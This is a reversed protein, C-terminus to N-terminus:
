SGTKRFYDAADIRRFELVKTTVEGARVSVGASLPSQFGPHRVEITYDGAPLSLALPTHRMAQPAHAAGHADNVAVVEGWPLADIVLTGTPVAIAAPPTASPQPSATELRVSSDAPPAPRRLWLLGGGLALALAAAAAAAPAALKARTPAEVRRTSLLARTEAPQGAHGRSAPPLQTTPASSAV